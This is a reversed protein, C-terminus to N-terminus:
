TSGEAVSHLMSQLTNGKLSDVIQQEIRKWAEQFAREVDKADPSPHVSLLAAHGQMAVIVDYLSIEDPPRALSYGRARGRHSRVIRSARLGQFVKSMFAEPAKAQQAIERLLVPEFPDPRQALYLLGRIAYDCGKALEM